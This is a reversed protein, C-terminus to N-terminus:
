NTGIVCVAKSNPFHERVRLRAIAAARASAAALEVSWAAHDFLLARASAVGPSTFTSFFNPAREIASGGEFRLQRKQAAVEAKLRAEGRDDRAEGETLRPWSCM